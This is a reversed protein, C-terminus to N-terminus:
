ILPFELYVNASPMEPHNDPLRLARAVVHACTVVQEEAFLFGAGFVELKGNATRIRVISSKLNEFM